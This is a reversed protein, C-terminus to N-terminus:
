EKEVVGSGLIAMPRRELRWTFTCAHAQEGRQHLAAGPPQSFGGDVEKSVQHSISQYQCDILVPSIM